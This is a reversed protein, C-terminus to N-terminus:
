RPHFVWNVINSCSNCVDYGYLMRYENYQEFYMEIPNFIYIRIIHLPANQCHECIPLPPM